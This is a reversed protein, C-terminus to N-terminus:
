EDICRMSIWVSDRLFMELLDIKKALSILSIFTEAVVMISAGITEMLATSPTIFSLDLFNKPSGFMFHYLVVIPIYDLYYRFKQPSINYLSM